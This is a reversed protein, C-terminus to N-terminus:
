HLRGRGIGGLGALRQRLAAADDAEPLHKLYLSLDAAAAEDHGIEALTLGRDRLEEWAQPLLVVLRECVALLRPWDEATRHIEKLRRDSDPGKFHTFALGVGFLVIFVLAPWLYLMFHQFNLLEFYRPHM